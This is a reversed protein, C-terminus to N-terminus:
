AKTPGFSIRCFERWIGSCLFLVSSLEGVLKQLRACPLLFIQSFGSCDCQLLAWQPQCHCFLGGAIAESGELVTALMNCPSADTWDLSVIAGQLRVM